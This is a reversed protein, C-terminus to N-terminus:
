ASKSLAHSTLIEKAMTEVITTLDFVKRETPEVNGFHDLVDSMTLGFCGLIDNAGQFSDSWTFRGKHRRQFEPSPRKGQTHVQLRTHVWRCQGRNYTSGKSRLAEGLDNHADKGMVEIRCTAFAWSCDREPINISSLLGGIEDGITVCKQPVSRAEFDRQQGKVCHYTTFRESM